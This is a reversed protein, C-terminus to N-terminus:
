TPNFGTVLGEADIGVIADLAAEIVAAQTALLRKLRTIDVLQGMAVTPGRARDPLLSAQLRVWRLAGDARIARLEVEFSDVEGSVLRQWHERLRERDDPHTLDAVTLELLSELSHGLIERCAQNAALFRGPAEVDARVFGMGAPAVQILELLQDGSPSLSPHSM